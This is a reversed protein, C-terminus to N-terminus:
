GHCYKYKKGSGCPCRENRGVKQAASPAKSPDPAAPNMQAAARGLAWPPPVWKAPPGFVRLKRILSRQNALEQQVIPALGAEYPLLRAMEADADDFRSCYALVVAYHSRVTILYDALKWQALQPLLIRQMIDLAGDFDRHKIFQDVLDQGVRFMSDPARALDYFKLAHVRALPAFSGQADMAKALVDLADALHKVDDLDAGPKLMKALQSANNGMVLKPTLGILQYYESVIPQVRTAASASDGLALEACAVNYSFIRRHTAPLKEVMTALRAILGAAGRRDGKTALFNMRKMSARLREEEGLDHKAILADMQDLWIAARDSGARMDAFALADLAKIRQDPPVAEDQAGQELYAEVEPWVGMEHFQEDTAMEVLVDLKGVEGTFRLFLALKAPNWGKVLSRYIVTRLAQKRLKVAQSGLLDLRGKGVVRAADHLKIRDGAFAQLLGQGLLHRLSRLFIAREPGKAAVVFAGAEERTLPADCLSLLDAVDAISDPLRKFVRGLILEQATERSHGQRALEACFNKLSGGYDSGTVSLANLVFLPLGGTLDILRQCDAADCRCGAEDAAAAITDPDWGRLEERAVGAFAEISGVEGEPRGLLIYRIDRGAEIVGAIEDAALRHVNDLAVTVVEGRDNLRRSLLQLIERGSAGSRFIEGAGQGDKYIRGAVERAIAHALAAGPLEAVDLYVLPGTDHLASQALWSTKGAGSYGVILRVREGSSLSPEDRQVRYPVPPVPLDQLHLLLQEFLAPLAEAAFVHDLSANEGTAALMVAGALKWTLTDPALTAFPLAEALSCCVDVAEMLSAQPAPVLRAAPKAGPWDISLDAPWDSAALRKRLPGNPEANSLIVFRATGTRDGRQHASRLESFRSLAREIDGWSLAGQRHKVQIYVRTGDLQVEVDEDSEVSVSQAGLTTSALLCQVAYLHQFLYGRHMVEIRVLQAPDIVNPRPRDSQTM